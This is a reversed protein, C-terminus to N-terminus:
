QGEREAPGGPARSIAWLLPLAILSIGAPVMISVSLGLTMSLRGVLAAAWAECLNTAGMFASFQTAGLRTDTLDMFVAYSSATFMGILGYLVSLLAFGAFLSGGPTRLAASLALVAVVVGVLAEAVTRIRGVRDGRWGGLLSGAAMAGVAGLGLFWGVQESTAGAERMLPGAVAGVAEFGAGGLAAFGLGLWTRIRSLSRILSFLFSSWLSRRQPTETDRGTVFHPERTFVLVLIMSFWICAILGILVAREGFYREFLLAGGGFVSRSTLMGVQMWANVSGREPEPVRAICLADISADQTAALFAHALLLAGALDVHEAMPLGLLPVLVLGMGLQASVIWARYGWRTSRLTDILPAWLFKLGWILAALATIQTVRSLEVGADTLKTPLAWWIYGIPAGESAYLAAFLVRRGRSSDLLNLLGSIERRCRSM